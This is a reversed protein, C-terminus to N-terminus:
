TETGDLCIPSLTFHAVCGPRDSGASGALPAFALLRQTSDASADPAALRPPTQAGAHHYRSAQTVDSGSRVPPRALLGRCSRRPPPLCAPPGQLLPQSQQPSNRRSFGIAGSPVCSALTGAEAARCSSAQGRQQAKARRHTLCVGIVHRPQSYSLGRETQRDEECGSDPPRKFIYKHRQGRPHPM